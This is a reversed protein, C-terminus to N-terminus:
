VTAVRDLVLFSYDFDDQEGAEHRERSMEIWDSSLDAPFSVDGIVEAHVETLYIRDAISLAKTYLAAGGIIFTEDGGFWKAGEVAEELSHFVEIGDATFDANRTVVLNPRRCHGPRDLEYKLGMVIPKGMTVAKFYRLDSSLKWPLGGDRGIIGNEAVAVILSIRLGESRSLPRSIRTSAIGM